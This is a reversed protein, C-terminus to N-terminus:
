GKKLAPPPSPFQRLEMQTMSMKKLMTWMTSTTFGETKMNSVLFAIAVRTLEVFDSIIRSAQKSFIKHTYYSTTTVVRERIKVVM